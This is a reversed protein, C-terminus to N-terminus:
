ISISNEIVKPDLYLYSLSRTQNQKNIKKSIEDLKEQFEQIYKQPTKETFHVDPYDGLRRRDQPENSLQSVVLLATTTTNVDPLTELITQLTTVGKATPPPSKMTSPGNPMWGYYDFQGSNVAAHQASCRFIVMTLYKVLSSVNELSSPIGSSPNSLFGKDYIEAVWAQLEPDSRVSEDGKYYYRVISSVFSALNHSLEQCRSGLELDNLVPM